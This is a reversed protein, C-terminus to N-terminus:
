TGYVANHCRAAKWEAYLGPLFHGIYIDAPEASAARALRGAFESEAWASTATTRVWGRWALRASVDSVSSKPCDNGNGEHPLQSFEWKWATPLGEDFAAGLSHGTGCVVRVRFGAAALANAEKVLRPNSSPAGPAVLCVSPPRGDGIVSVEYGNRDDTDADAFQHPSNM